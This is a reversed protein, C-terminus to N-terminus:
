ILSNLKRLCQIVEKISEKVKYKETEVPNAKALRSVRNVEDIIDILLTSIERHLPPTKRMPKQLAVFKPVETKTIKIPKNVLCRM